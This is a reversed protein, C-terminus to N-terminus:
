HGPDGSRRLGLARKIRRPHFISLRRRGRPFPEALVDPWLRRMLAEFLRHRPGTRYKQSVSLMNALLIRCNFPTLIDRWAIDFELQAMALWNGCRQEWYLLDLVGPNRLRPLGAVWAGLADAAFRSSGMKVLRSLTGPTPVTAATDRLAYFPRAVEGGSGTVVVWNLGGNQLIAQAEPIWVEHPLSINQRFVAAFDEDVSSPWPMINHRLRLRRLLRTPVDVDAVPKGPKRLTMYSVGRAIRRTAALVLRSDRGATVAIVLGFRRSASELLGELIRASAEVCDQLDLAGLDEVPWYRHSKGSSLDLYHNPLLHRVGVYASSEGPLWHERNAWRGSAVLAVAGEDKQLNLVRTLVAPESACWLEGAQAVDTYFVQRLGLADHFLGARAGDNVVLVWRGGFRATHRLLDTGVALERLLGAAVDANTAGADYPDLLCGILAVSRHDDGCRHVDLDPHVTLSWGRGLPLRKWGELGEVFRPGLVFQLRHLLRSGGPLGGIELTRM